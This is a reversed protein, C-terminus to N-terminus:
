AESRHMWILEEDTQFGRRQYYGETREGRQTMLYLYTIGEQKLQERLGDLLVGGCGKGQRTGDVCFEQIYFRPGDYYQERQGCILGLLEGDEELALGLFMETSMFQALRAKATDLTWHDLWPEGNFVDRFLAAYRDMDQRVMPTLRMM